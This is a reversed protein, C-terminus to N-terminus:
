LSLSEVWYEFGAEEGSRQGSSFTLNALIDEGLLDPDIGYEGTLLDRDGVWMSLDSESAAGMSFSAKSALSGATAPSASDQMQFM